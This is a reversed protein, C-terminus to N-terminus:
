FNVKRFHCPAIAYFIIDSLLISLVLPSVSSVVICIVNKDLCHDADTVQRRPFMSIDCCSINCYEVCLSSYSAKVIHLLLLSSCCSSVQSM